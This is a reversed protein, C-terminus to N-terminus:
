RAAASEPGGVTITVDRQTTLQEDTARARLVYVGAKTFTAKVEALWETPVVSAPDFEVRAPGRWVIWSLSVGQRRGAAARGRVPAAVQPVNTPADQPGQLIPPTEQGVAQRGRGRSKPLGDDTVRATLTLSNPAALPPPPSVTLTPPQNKPATSSAGDTGPVSIEWEPQLWAVAKDTKGHVTLSWALEKKGWDAPVTVSFANRNSRTYFFTPQGRDPGGPDINNDPGIPVTPAEAYNRNFYGFHMTFGGDANKTWGEFVPQVDLGSNYRLYYPEFQARAATALLGFALATPIWRVLRLRIRM